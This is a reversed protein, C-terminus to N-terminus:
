NHIRARGTGAVSLRQTGTLKLHNVFLVATETLISTTGPSYNTTAAGTAGANGTAGIPGPIVPNDDFIDPELFLISGAVGTLGQTGQTGTAGAVGPISIGDEGDIGDQGVISLGSAGTPGTPGTAGNTGSSGPPGPIVIADEPQDPEFFLTNGNVGITGNTGPIGQIGQTGAVGPTGDIGAEGDEGALGPIGQAGVGGGTGVLAQLASWSIQYNVNPSGLRAIVFADTANLIVTPTLGTIPTGSM